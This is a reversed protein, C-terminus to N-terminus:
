SNVLDKDNHNAIHAKFEDNNPIVMGGTMIVKFADEVKMDLNIVEKEPLMVFFGSTPNPTTPVFICVM